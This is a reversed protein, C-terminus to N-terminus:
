EWDAQNLSMFFAEDFSWSSLPMWQQSNPLTVPTVRSQWVNAAGFLGVIQSLAAGSLTAESVLGRLYGCVVARDASTGASLGAGWGLLGARVPTLRSPQVRSLSASDYARGYRAPSATYRPTVGQDVLGTFPNRLSMGVQGQRGLYPNHGSANGGVVCFGVDDLPTIYAGVYIAASTSASGNDATETGSCFMVTFTHEDAVAFWHPNLGSLGGLWVGCRETTSQGDFWPGSRRNYGSPLATAGDTVTEMIYIESRNAAATSAVFAVVGMGNSFSFGLGDVSEHALTWGAGVKAGYGTVLCAGLLQRLRQFNQGTLIPAGADLSSYMRVTM